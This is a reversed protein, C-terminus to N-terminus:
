FYKVNYTNFYDTIKYILRRRKLLFKYKQVYPLKILGKENLKLLNSLHM